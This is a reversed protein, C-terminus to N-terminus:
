NAETLLLRCLRFLEDLRLVPMAVSGFVHYLSDPSQSGAVRKGNVGCAAAAGNSSSLDISSTLCSSKISLQCGVVGDRKRSLDAHLPSGFRSVIVFGM